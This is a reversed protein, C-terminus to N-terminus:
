REGETAGPRAAAAQRAGDPGAGDATAEVAVTGDTAEGDTAEGGRATPPAGAVPWTLEVRLGSGDPAAAEARAHGGHGAAIARVIALGLGSGRTGRAADGRAFREFIRDRDAAPVGPGTDRVWLRARGDEVGSGVAVTAGPATFKVANEALQLGAQTLRQADGPVVADARADVVWRRDGLARARDLLDDTLRGLDVPAARVFDPREAKALLVLDEVIRSMRAIEDLLLARTEAVDAPDDADLVELNGRLVTLPTRLEHGADDLFQRQGEFSAALRDLMTNFTRALAAVDDDGRVPARLDLRDEGVQRATAGLLTLPRLLRGAVLWAVIGVLVLVVVGVVTFTRMLDAQPELARDLAVAVVYAGSHPEGDIRVPVVVSRVRGVDTDLHREVVRATDPPVGAVTARLAADDALAAAWAPSYLEPDGDRFTVLAEHAGPVNREIAVRLLQEVSTFPEGTDPDVGTAALRRFEEVEQGLDEDVGDVVTRTQIADTLLGTALLGLATMALVSAVVKARVTLPRRV